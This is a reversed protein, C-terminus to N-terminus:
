SRAQAPMHTEFWDITRVVCDIASPLKRVGHWEEPYLVLQSTVGFQRLANHFQVAEEPPTCRDLAGAINLTPTRSQRAHMVPSRTFYAGGPNDFDDVLFAAFFDPVNSILQQTVMNSTPSIAVAAAFRQDLTTL